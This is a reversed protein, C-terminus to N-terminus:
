QDVSCFWLMQLSDHMYDQNRQRILNAEKFNENREHVIDSCYIEINLIISSVFRTYKSTWIQM